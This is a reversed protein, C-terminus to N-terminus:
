DKGVDPFNKKHVVVDKGLGTGIIHIEDKEVNEYVRDVESAITVVERSENDRGGKAVKDVFNRRTLDRVGVKAVDQHEPNFSSTCSRALTYQFYVQIRFYTHLLTTFEWEKSDTNKIDLTTTLNSASLKVTYIM